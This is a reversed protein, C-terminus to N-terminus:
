AKGTDAAEMSAVVAAEMSVAEVEVTSAEVGASPEATSDVELRGAMSAEVLPGAMTAATARLAMSAAMDPRETTAMEMAQAIFDTIRVSDPAAAMRRPVLVTIVAGTGMVAAGIETTAAAAIDATTAVVTDMGAGTVGDGAGRIGMGGTIGPAPASLYAAPLGARGTIDMRRARMRITLITAGTVFRHVTWM